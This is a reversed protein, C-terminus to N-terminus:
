SRLGVFILHRSFLASCPIYNHVSRHGISQRDRGLAKEAEEKSTFEVFGEGTEEGNDDTQIM